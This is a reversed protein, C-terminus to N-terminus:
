PCKSSTTTEPLALALTTGSTLNEVAVESAEVRRFKSEVPISACINYKGWPMGADPQGDTTSILAGNADTTYERKVLSSGFKCVTDTATVRAGSVAAGKYTLKLNLAPLQIEPKATGGPALQFTAMAARNEPKNEAPDPNNSECAGAYMTYPTKFPFLNAKEFSRTRTGGPTGYTQASKGAESDFLEVSDVSASHFEGTSGVRYRFVPKLTAAVDYLLSVTQTGASPVGIEKTTSTEGAPNIMGNASTTVKYNGAPLESFNACGTSDTEGSFTGAGTGSVRVNALPQGAANKAGFSFTGRSQNTSGSSPAIISQLSVPTRLTPSTVTSTIRVYDAVSSEGSCSVEGSKSNVYTGQSRVTFETGNLVVPTQTQNLRELSSLRMTRLRAQDEQALAVAQAHVRESAASHTTGSLLSLVAAAVIALILASVLVEILIFGEQSAARRQAPAIRM